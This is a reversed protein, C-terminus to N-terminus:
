GIYESKESDGKKEINVEECVYGHNPCYWLNNNKYCPTGCYPCNYSEM